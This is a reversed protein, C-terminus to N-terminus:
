LTPFGLSMCCCEAIASAEISFRKKGDTWVSLDAEAVQVELLRKQGGELVTLGDKSVVEFGRLGLRAARGAEDLEAAAAAALELFRKGAAAALESSTCRPNFQM